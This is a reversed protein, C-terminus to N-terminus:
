LKGDEGVVGKIQGNLEIIVNYLTLDITAVSRADANIQYRLVNNLLVPDHYNSVLYINTGPGTGDSVVKIHDYCTVPNKVSPEIIQREM